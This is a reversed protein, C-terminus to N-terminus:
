ETHMGMKGNTYVVPLSMDRKGDRLQYVLITKPDPRAVTPKVYEYGPNDGTLPNKLLEALKKDDLYEKTDNLSEPWKNRALHYIVVADGLSQANQTATERRKANNDDTNQDQRETQTNNQPERKNEDNNAKGCGAVIIIASLAVWQYADRM